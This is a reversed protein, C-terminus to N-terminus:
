GFKRELWNCAKTMGVEKNLSSRPSFPRVQLDTSYFLPLTRSSILKSSVQTDLQTWNKPNLVHLLSYKWIERQDGNGNGVNITRQQNETTQFAITTSRKITTLIALRNYPVTPWGVLVRQAVLQYAMYGTSKYPWERICSTLPWGCKSGGVILGYGWFWNMISKYPQDRKYPQDGLPSIRPWWCNLWAGLFYKSNIQIPLGKYLQDGLPSM